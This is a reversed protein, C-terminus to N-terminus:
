LIECADTTKKSNHLCITLHIVTIWIRSGHTNNIVPHLTIQIHLFSTQEVDFQTDRDYTADNCLLFADVVPLMLRAYTSQGADWSGRSCIQRQNQYVHWSYAQPEPRPTSM